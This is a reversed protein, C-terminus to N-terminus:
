RKLVHIEKFLPTYQHHRSSLQESSLTFNVLTPSNSFAFTLGDDFTKPLHKVRESGPTVLM